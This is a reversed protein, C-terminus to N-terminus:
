KPILPLNHPGDGQAGGGHRGAGPLCLAALPRHTECGNRDFSM